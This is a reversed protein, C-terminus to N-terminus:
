VVDRSVIRIQEPPLDRLRDLDDFLRVIQGPVARRAQKVVDATQRPPIVSVAKEYITGTLNQIDEALVAAGERFDPYKSVGDYVGWLGVGLATVWVKFSGEEIRLHLDTSDGYIERVGVVASKRIASYIKDLDLAEVDAHRFNLYAQGIPTRGTERFFSRM